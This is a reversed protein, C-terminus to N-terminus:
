RYFALARTVAEALYLAGLGLAFGPELWDRWGLPRSPSAEPRPWRAELAAGCHARIREVTEPLADHARLARLGEDVEDGPEWTPMLM